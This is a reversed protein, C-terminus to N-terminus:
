YRVGGDDEAKKERRKLWRVHPRNRKQYHFFNEDVLLGDSLDGYSGKIDRTAKEGRKGYWYMMFDKM